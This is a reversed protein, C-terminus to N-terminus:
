KKYNKFIKKYIDILKKSEKDWNFAQIIYNHGNNALLQKLDKNTIIKIIASAIEDSNLPDVFFGANVGELEYKWKDFNSAIFPIKFLMYEYLKNASTNEHDGVNLITVLGVDAKNVYAMADVYRMYSLYTTYKFGPLESIKDLYKQEINGILWLGAKVKQNVIDIANIIQEIGRDKTLSYGVYIAMPYLKTINASKTSVNTLFDNNILPANRLLVSNKYIKTQCDQTVFFGDAILSVIYELLFVVNSVPKRLIKPIWEKYLIRKRFDEHTDYVIKYGLLKMFFTLLLTDPNNFHYCDAKEKLLHILLIPLYAFRLFRSKFSPVSKIHIGNNIFNTKNRCYLVVDYGNSNLTRCIKYFVRIDNSTHVPAVVCIKM